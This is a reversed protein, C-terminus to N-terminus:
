SRRRCPTALRRRVEERIEARSWGDPIPDDPQWRAAQERREREVDAVLAAIVPEAAPDLIAYWGPGIEAAAAGDREIRFFDSEGAFTAIRPDAARAAREIRFGSAEAKARLVSELIEMEIRHAM